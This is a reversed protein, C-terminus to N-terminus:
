KSGAKSEPIAQDTDSSSSGAKPEAATAQSRSSEATELLTASMARQDVRAPPILRPSLRAAFLLACVASRKDGLGDARFESVRKINKTQISFVGGETMADRSNVALNFIIQDMQARDAKVLHLSPGQHFVLKIDEGILRQVLKQSEAIVSNLNLVETQHVRKHSFAMLQRTLAVAKQAAHQMAEVSELASEGSELEELASDAHLLIVSM